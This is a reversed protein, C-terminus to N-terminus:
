FRWGLLGLPARVKEDANHDAEYGREQNQGPKDHNEDLHVRRPRRPRCGRRGRPRNRWRCVSPQVVTTRRPRWHYIVAVNGHGGRPGWRVVGVENGQLRRPDTITKKERWHCHTEPKPLKIDHAFDNDNVNDKSETVLESSSFLSSHWDPRSELGGGGDIYLLWWLPPCPIPISETAEWVAVTRFGFRNWWDLLRWWRGGIAATLEYFANWAVNISLVPPISTFSILLRKGQTAVYGRQTWEFPLASLHGLNTNTCDPAGSREFRVSFLSIPFLSLRPPQHVKWM